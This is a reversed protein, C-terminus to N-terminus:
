IDSSSALYFVFVSDSLYLYLILYTYVTTFEIYMSYVISYQVIRYQVISYQVISCQVLSYQVISYQVMCYQVMSYQVISYWVISYWVISYSVIDVFHLINFPLSFFFLDLAQSLSVSQERFLRLNPVETWHGFATNEFIKIYSSLGIVVNAAIQQFVM